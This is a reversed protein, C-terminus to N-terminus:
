YEVNVTIFKSDDVPASDGTRVYYWGDVFPSDADSVGTVTTNIGANFPQSLMVKFRALLYANEGNTIPELLNWNMDDTFVWAVQLAKLYSEGHDYYLYQDLAYKGAYIDEIEVSEIVSENDRDYNLQVQISSIFKREGTALFNTDNVWVELYYKDALSVSEYDTAPLNDAPLYSFTGFNTTGTKLTTVGSSTPEVTAILSLNVKDEATPQYAGTVTLPVTRALTAGNADTILIEIEITATENLPLLDFDEALLEVNIVLRQTGDDSKVLTIADSSVSYGDPSKIELLHGTMEEGEPDIVGYLIDPSTEGSSFNLVGTNIDFTGTLTKEEYPSRNNRGIVTISLEAIVTDEVSNTVMFTVLVESTEGLALEEFTEQFDEIDIGIVGNTQTIAGTPLIYEGADIDTIAVTLSLGQADTVGDLLNLSSQGDDYTVTNNRLDVTATHDTVGQPGKSGEIVTITIEGDVSAGLSDTVMFNVTFVATDTTPLNAFDSQLLETDITVAGNEGITVAQPSVTYGSPQVMGTKEATLDHGDPDTAQDLVNLSAYADDFLVTGTSVTFLATHSTVGTPAHNGGTITLAIVGDLVGSHTDIIRYNANVLTTSGFKLEAFDEALIEPVIEVFGDSSTQVADNSVTYTPDAPTVSVLGVTMDYGLPHTVGDLLNLTPSSGNFVIEGTGVNFSATHSSPGVPNVHENGTGFVNLTVTGAKNTRYSTGNYVFSKVTFTFTTSLLDGQKLHDFLNTKNQFTWVGETINTADTLETLFATYEAGTIGWYVIQEEATSYVTGDDTKLSLSPTMSTEDKVTFSDVTSDECNVTINAPIDLNVATLDDSDLTDAITYPVPFIEPTPVDQISLDATVTIGRNLNQLDVDGSDIKGDLNIDHLVDYIKDVPQTIDIGYRAQYFKITAQSYIGRNHVQIASLRAALMTSDTDDVKGSGDTDGAFFVSVTFEGTTGDEPTITIHYEGGTLKAYILSEQEFKGEMNLYLVDDTVDTETQADYITLKGPHLPSGNKATVDIGIVVERDPTTTLNLIVTPSTTEDILGDVSALSWAAPVASLLSRDELSEIKLGRHLPLGSKKNGSRRITRFFSHILGM